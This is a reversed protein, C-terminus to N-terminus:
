ATALFEDVARAWAERTREEANDTIRRGAALVGADGGDRRMSRRVHSLFLLEDILERHRQALTTWNETAVPIDPLDAPEHGRRDPLALAALLDGRTPVESITITTM